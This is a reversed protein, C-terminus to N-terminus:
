ARTVTTSMNQTNQQQQEQQFNQHHHQQACISQIERILKNNLFTLNCLEFGSHWWVFSQKVRLQKSSQINYSGQRAVKERGSRQCALQILIHLDIRVTKRRETCITNVTSSISTMLSNGPGSELNTPGQKMYGYLLLHQHNVPKSNWFM